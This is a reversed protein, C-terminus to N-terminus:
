KGHIRELYESRALVKQAYKSMNCKGDAFDDAESDGNYTMLVYAVDGYKEFLELLYDTAVLINGYPDYIDSVGLRKMRDKHWKESVQMLGKCSGNVAKPNGSSEAEIMSMLLEPCICYMEGIEVCYEQYEKDIWTDESASNLVISCLIFTVIFTIIAMIIKKKM